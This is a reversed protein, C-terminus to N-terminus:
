RPYFCYLQTGCARDCIASMWMVQCAKAPLRDNVQPGLGPLVGQLEHPKVQHRVRLKGVVEVLLMGRHPDVDMRRQEVWASRMMHVVVKAVLEFVGGLHAEVGHAHVLM